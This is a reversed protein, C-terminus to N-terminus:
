RLVEKTYVVEVGREGAIGVECVGEGGKGLGGLLVVEVNIGSGVDMQLGLSM